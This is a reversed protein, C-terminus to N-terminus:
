VVSKRDPVEPEDAARVVAELARVVPDARELDFAGEELAAGDGLRGDNGRGVRDAAEDRLGVDRELGAELGIRHGRRHDELRESRLHGGEAADPAELEYRVERLGDRSLDAADLKAALLRVAVRHARVLEALFTRLASRKANARGTPACVDAWELARGKRSRM